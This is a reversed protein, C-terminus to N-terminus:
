EKIIKESLLINGNLDKIEVFYIGKRLGSINITENDSQVKSTYVNQGLSNFISMNVDQKNQMEMFLENTAPIPTTEGLTVSYLGENVSVSKTESWTTGIAFTISKTGTVPIGNELLKGQYSIKQPIEQATSLGCFILVGLITFILRKM